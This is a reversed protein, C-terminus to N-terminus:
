SLLSKQRLTQRPKEAVPGVDPDAGGPPGTWPELKSLFRAAQATIREREPADIRTLGVLALGMRPNAALEDEHRILFSWYLTTFPCADPGERVEPRHPCAPCFDGMRNIYAGSAIYPKTATLGGDANLGMGIVNPLVVWDHSDAYFTLFWDAVAAPDVGALLCFNCVVMLREIHHTYASDILRGVVGRVCAMDTRADWFMRPMPRTSEWANARRLGPMQRHYQWYIFERWGVVQRIFGEVSNIPSRGQRYEAEARRAMELPDLLGLNMQPALMSHFLVGDDRSMADEFAGFGPLRRRLFDDFAGEADLRTTALDFGLASGVGFGSAEVEEIVARTIEDPEFRPPRPIAARKPLRRRNELDFNWRGSTPEGGSDVLLHFRRRIAHYFDEMVYLRGVEPRPIPNFREVLFQSNPLVEVPVGLDEAMAGLQWRRPGYEAAQMTILRSPRHRGVHEVLGERSTEAQIIEVQYGKAELEAAFHRGASLYLVQRIRHYPLRRMWARSEVLVVRVEDRDNAHDKEALRLAPHDVRLQDPLIWVSVRSAM